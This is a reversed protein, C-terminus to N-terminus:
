WNQSSNSNYFNYVFKQHALVVAFTYGSKQEDSIPWKNRYFALYMIELIYHSIIGLVSFNVLNRYLGPVDKPRQFEQPM